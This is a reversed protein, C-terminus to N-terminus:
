SFLNGKRDRVERAETKRVKDGNTRCSTKLRIGVVLTTAKWNGRKDGIIAGAEGEAGKDKGVGTDEGGLTVGADEGTRVM